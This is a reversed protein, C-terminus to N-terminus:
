FFVIRIEKIVGKEKKVYVPYVGDGYGTGCAVGAGEHGMKFNLQGTGREGVTAKCCGDYSFEGTEREPIEELIGRKVAENYTMGDKYISEYTIGESLRAKPGKIIEGTQTDKMINEFRLHGGQWESEIYCPDCILLQGSDVGVVGVQEFGKM